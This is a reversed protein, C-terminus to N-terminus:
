IPSKQKVISLYFDEIKEFSASYEEYFDKHIIKCNIKKDSLRFKELEYHERFSWYKASNIKYLSEKISWIITLFDLEQENEIWFYETEHLFKSKIKKIKDQIKELDIGIKEESIAVVAFPYSHSISIKFDSPELFPERNPHHKLRHKPSLIQLMKKVVLIEKQRKPHLDKIKDIDKPCFSEEQFIENPHHKWILIKIKDKNIEKFIPM